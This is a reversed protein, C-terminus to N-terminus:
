HEEGFDETFLAGHKTFRQQGVIWPNNERLYLADFENHFWLVKDNSVMFSDSMWSQSIQTIRGAEDM